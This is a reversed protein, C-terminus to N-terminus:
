SRRTIARALLVALEDAGYRLTLKGCDDVTDHRPQCFLREAAANVSADNEQWARFTELLVERTL